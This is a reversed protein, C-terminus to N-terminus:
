ERSEGDIFFHPEKISTIRIGYHDNVIVIEGRAVQNGNILFNFGSDKDEDLVLISGEKLQLLRHISLETQGFQVQVALSVDELFSLPREKQSGKDGASSLEKGFEDLLPPAEQEFAELRASKAQNADNEPMHQRYKEIGM